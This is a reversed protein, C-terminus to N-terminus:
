ELLGRQDHPLAAVRAEVLAEKIRSDPGEMYLGSFSKPALIATLILTAADNMYLMSGVMKVWSRSGGLRELKVPFLKMNCQDKYTIKSSFKTAVKWDAYSLYPEQSHALTDLLNNELDRWRDVLAATFEPSLQAVVIYSDREELRYFRSVDASSEPTQLAIVGREDLRTLSRIVDSHRTGVLTAIEMSTMTQKITASLSKM